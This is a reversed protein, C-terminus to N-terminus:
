AGSPAKNNTDEDSLYFAEMGPLCDPRQRMAAIEARLLQITRGHESLLAKLEINEREVEVSEILLEDSAHKLDTKWKSFNLAAKAWNRTLADAQGKYKNKLKIVWWFTFLDTAAAIIMIAIIVPRPIDYISM